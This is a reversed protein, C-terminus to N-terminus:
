PGYVTANKRDINDNSKAVTSAESVSAAIKRVEPVHM